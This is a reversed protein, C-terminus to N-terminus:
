AKGTDNSLRNELLMTTSARELPRPAIVLRRIHTDLVTDILPDLSMRLFWGISALSTLVAYRTFAYLHELSCNDDDVNHGDITAQHNEMLLESWNFCSEAMPFTAAYAVAMLCFSFTFVGLHVGLRWIATHDRNLSSVNRRDQRRRFLVLAVFGYSLLTTVYSCIPLILSIAGTEMMSKDIVKECLAVMWEGLLGYYQNRMMYMMGNSDFMTQQETAFVVLCLLGIMVVWGLAIFKAVRAVNLSLKYQLPTRVAYFTLMGIGFYSGALMWYNFTVILQMAIDPVFAVTKCEVVDCQIEVKYLYVLSVAAAIADVVSRNAVFLLRKAPVKKRRIGITTILLLFLNVFVALSCLGLLLGPLYKFIFELVAYYLSEKQACKSAM